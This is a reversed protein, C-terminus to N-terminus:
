RPGGTSGSTSGSSGSSTSSQSAPQTVNGTRYRRVASAGREGSGGELIEEAYQPDPDVVQQAINARHTEGFGYDVPTCGAALGASALLLFHRKLM